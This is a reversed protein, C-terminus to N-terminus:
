WGYQEPAKGRSEVLKPGKLSPDVPEVREVLVAFQWNDGFDYVFTMTSGEKLSLERLYTEDAFPGEGVSPHYYSRKVGLPDPVAFKYLHDFDFKYANLIAASLQDLDGEGPMAFRRWVRGLSVKLFYTGDRVEFEPKTLHRKLDKFFPQFIRIAKGYGKEFDPRTLRMFPLEVQAVAQQITEFVAEGWETKGVGEINWGKGTEAPGDQIEVFGFMELLALLLIEPHHLFFYANVDKPDLKLAKKPVKEVIMHCSSLVHGLLWPSEGIIRPDARMLLTELLSFYREVPNLSRWIELMADRPVVVNAKKGSEIGVLGAARALLYLGSINPYTLMKPSKFGIKLPHALRGNIDELMKQPLYGMKKSVELPSNEGIFELMAEFDRLITGPGNEDIVQESLFKGAETAATKKSAKKKQSGM